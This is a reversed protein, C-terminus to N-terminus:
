KLSCYSEPAPDLLQMKSKLQTRQHDRCPYRYLSSNGSTALIHWWSSIDKKVVWRAPEAQVRLSRSYASELALRGDMAIPHPTIQAIAHRWAQRERRSPTQQPRSLLCHILVPRHNRPSALGCVARSGM